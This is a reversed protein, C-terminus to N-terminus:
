NPTQLKQLYERLTNCSDILDPAQTKLIDPLLTVEILEAMIEAHSNYHLLWWVGSFRTEKIESLGLANVEASVEGNGLFQKLFDYDAPSLPLSRIDIRNEEGREALATLMDQIEQLLALVQGSPKLEGNYIAELLLTHSTFDSMTAM